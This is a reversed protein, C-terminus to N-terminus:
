DSFSLEPFQEHSFETPQKGELQVRDPTLTITDGKENLSSTLIKVRKGSPLLTWTGPWPYLARIMQHLSRPTPPLHYEQLIQVQYKSETPFASGNMSARLTEYPIYGDDRTFKRTLPTPSTLPQPTIVIDKKSLESLRKDLERAGQVFLRQLLEEGSENPQVPTTQSFLIGGQDFKANMRIVTIGTEADGFLLTFPVPSAGRWRPLLSPHLNYSGFKPIDLMTQPLLFGFDAVIMFECEPLQAYFSPTTFSQKEVHFVPIKKSVAWTELACPTILQKRGVPKPFPCIVGVIHVTPDAYFVDAVTVTTQPTGALLIRTM